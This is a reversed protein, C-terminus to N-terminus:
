VMITVFTEVERLQAPLEVRHVRNFEDLGGFWAVVKEKEVFSDSARSILNYSSYKWNSIDKVFQHEVPNRHIYIILNTFYADSDILKRRFTHDFLSGFRKQQKNFAQSYSSFLNSYQKSVYQSVNYRSSEPVQIDQRIEVFFHVHNPMLCYALTDAVPSV